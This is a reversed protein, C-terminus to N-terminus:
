NSDEIVLASGFLDKLKQEREDLEESLFVISLDKQIGSVCEQIIKMNVPANVMTKKSEAGTPFVVKLVGNEVSAAKGEKTLYYVMPNKKRIADQINKWLAAADSASEEKPVPDKMFVAEPPVPIEEKTEAKVAETVPVVREPEKWPIEYEEPPPLPEPLDSSELPALPAVRRNELQAIRTELAEVTHEDVPRCIRVLTSEALIRPYPFFRLRSEAETLKEIAFLIQSEDAKKAQKLYTAMQDDTIDLLEACEGCTKAFLLYRLHILLDGTLVSVDRGSRIVKDLLSLCKAADGSLIADSLSFLIESDVNGLVDQVDKKSVSTGCFSVCQDLLSLADRMSGDAARAIIRLGDPEVKVGIGSLVQQLRAIIHASSLRHFDFRQCRSIITAPLKQPETTALIFIVHKPPEELTKLLANFAATSLMHVEDIIFVRYRLQLPAFQAQEILERVNDVGNNSAADIEIIDATGEAAIRCAECTGCPEGDLPNLCNVARSLIKASSTKGTGRSGCFLYAHSFNNEKIQNRLIATVHDQGIVDRFFSPRYERYLARKAMGIRSHRLHYCYVMNDKEECYSYPM